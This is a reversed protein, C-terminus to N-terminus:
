IVLKKRNAIITKRAIFEVASIDVSLLAEEKSFPRIPEDNFGEAKTHVVKCRINYISKGFQERLDLEKNKENIGEISLKKYDEAFFKSVYEQKLFARMDEEQICGKITACLQGEENALGRGLTAKITRVLKELHLSNDPSFLPDKLTNSLEQQLEKDSYMPFYFEIVQYYALFQLLPMESASLAYWYLNLPDTHYQFKPFSIKVGLSPKVARKRYLKPFDHHTELIFSENHIIQIEFFLSNAIKELLEVAAKNTSITLGTIKLSLGLEEKYAHGLLTALLRSPNSLKLSIKSGDELKHELELNIKGKENIEQVSKGSIRALLRRRALRRIPKIEAEIEGKEYSCIAEYGQIFRYKEFDTKNLKDATDADWISTDRKADGDQLLLVLYYKKEETKGDDSPWITEDIRYNIKAKECREIIAHFSGRDPEIVLDLRNDM